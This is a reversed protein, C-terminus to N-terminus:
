RSSHIVKGMATYEVTAAKLLHSENLTESRDAAFFVGRLVANKIYGGSMEFRQALRRVNIAPAAQPPLHTRWLREREDQDPLEFTIRFSLRRKFAEDISSELNTTLISIGSFSEMRQLLFNVELNAYRDNSTKVDTRKAFMSDAEDFLLVVHGAEAADFLEALNKETEGIYKSVIRSLDVQYLDLGLDCAIVSAVMTKGTGPPGSFLASIGFSKAIKDANEWQGYVVKRHKVRAVIERVEDLADDTLVIDTWTQRAVVRRASRIGGHLDARSVAEQRAEAEALATRAAREITGGTVTYRAAAWAADDSTAGTGLNRKWLTTRDAETPPDIEIVVLGRAFAAPRTNGRPGTAAVIGSLTSVLEEDVIQLRDPRGMDAVLADVGHLVVLANALVAERLLTRCTRALAIPEM